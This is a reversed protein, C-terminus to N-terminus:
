VSKRWKQQRDSQRDSQRDPQRDPQGGTRRDTQGHTLEETCTDALKLFYCVTLSCLELKLEQQAWQQLEFQQLEFSFIHFYFIYTAFAVHVFSARSRASSEFITYRIVCISTDKIYKYHTHFLEVIYFKQKPIVNKMNISENLRFLSYILM